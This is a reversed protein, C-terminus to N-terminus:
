FRLECCEYSQNSNMRCTKHNIHPVINEYLMSDMSSEPNYNFLYSDLLFACPVCNFPLSCSYFGKVKCMLLHADSSVLSSDTGAFIISLFSLFAGALIINNMNPSSMKIYRFYPPSNSVLDTANFLIHLIHMLHVNVGLYNSIINM